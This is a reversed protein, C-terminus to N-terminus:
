FMITKKKLDHFDQSPFLLWALIFSPVKKSKKFISQM